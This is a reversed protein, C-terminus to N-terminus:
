LSGQSLVMLSGHSFWSLSGHSLVMLSFWSLAMLSGHSLVMLSFWSLSLVTLSFSGYLDMLSGHPGHSFKSGKLIVGRLSRSLATLSGPSFRQTFRFQVKPTFRSQVSLSSLTFRSHVELSAESLVQVAVETFRSQLFQKASNSGSVSM